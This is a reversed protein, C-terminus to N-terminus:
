EIKCCCKGGMTARKRNKFLIEEEAGTVGCEQKEDEEM